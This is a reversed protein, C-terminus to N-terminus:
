GATQPRFPANHEFPGALALHEVLQDPQQGTGATRPLLTFDGPADMGPLTQQAGADPEANGDRM